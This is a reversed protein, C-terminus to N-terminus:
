LALKRLRRRFDELKFSWLTSSKSFRYAPNIWRFRAVTSAAEERKNLAIQSAALYVRLTNQKVLGFMEIAQKWTAESEAYKGDMFYSIGLFALLRYTPVRGLNDAILLHEIARASEGARFLYFGMFMNTEFDGPQIALAHGMADVAADFKSDALLADALAIHSWAFDPDREIAKRALDFARSTRRARNATASAPRSRITSRWDPTAAPSPRTSSSPKRFLAEGKEINKRLPVEVAARARRWADYADITNLHKQFVRDHERAKLTVEMAKVVNQTVESQVAFIDGANRDYRESWLNGDRIADVLQATIRAKEGAWRVGSSLVYRM